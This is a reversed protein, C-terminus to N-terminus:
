CVNFGLLNLSSGAYKEKMIKPNNKLHLGESTSTVERGEMTRCPSKSGRIASSALEGEAPRPLPSPQDEPFLGTVRSRQPLGTSSHSWLHNLIRLHNFTYGPCLVVM